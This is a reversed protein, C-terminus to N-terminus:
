RERRPASRTPADLAPRLADREAASNPRLTKGARAWKADLEQPKIGKAVQSRWKPLVKGVYVESFQLVNSGNLAKQEDSTIVRLSHLGAAVQEDMPAYAGRSMVALMCTATKIGLGYVTLGRIFEAFQCATIRKPSPRKAIRAGVEALKAVPVPPTRKKAAEISQLRSILSLDIGTALKPVSAYNADFTWISRRFPM